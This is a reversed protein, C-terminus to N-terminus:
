KKIKFRKDRQSAEEIAKKEYVKKVIVNIVLSSIVSFASSIIMYISFASTYIFSFIGFMIPMIWKMMKQTQGATSNAGDVSQLEMQAKQEKEMIIQSLFMVAISLVVLIFYGNKDSKEEKMQGTLINYTDADMDYATRGELPNKFLSDAVWINKIWLFSDKEKNFANKAAKQAEVLIEENFYILPVKNEVYYNVLAQKIATSNNDKEDIKGDLNEDIEYYYVTKNEVTKSQKIFYNNVIEPLSAVMSNLLKASKYDSYLNSAADDGSYRNAYNESFWNNYETLNKVKEIDLEKNNTKDCIEYSYIKANYANIMENAFRRNAYTSYDNFAGIVIFFIIISLISPLCSTLPSYGEKKQLAMVKQQYLVKDNAYQKQLKELEPRMKEMKISNKKTSVKSMIDFPLTILKLILTFLIVGVGVGYAPKDCIVRVIKGIWDLSENKVNELIVTSLFNLV